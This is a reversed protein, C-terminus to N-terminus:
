KSSTTAKSPLPLASAAAERLPHRFLIQFALLYSAHLLLYKNPMM